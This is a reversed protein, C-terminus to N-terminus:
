YRFMNSINSATTVACFALNKRFLFAVIAFVILLLGAGFSFWRLVSEASKSQSSKSPDLPNYYIKKISGKSADLALKATNFTSFRDSMKGTYNVNNVTYLVDYVVDFYTTPYKKNRETTSVIDASIVTADTITYSSTDGTIKSAFVSVGLLVLGLLGAMVSGTIQRFNCYQVAAEKFNLVM